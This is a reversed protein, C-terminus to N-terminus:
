VFGMKQAESLRLGIHYFGDDLDSKLMYVPGLKPDALIIEILMQDLARGYQISDVNNLPLTDANVENFSYDSVRRTRLDCEVKVGPPILRLRPIRQAVLYPLVM